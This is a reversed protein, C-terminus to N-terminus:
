NISAMLQSLNYFYVLNVKNTIKRAFHTGPVDHMQMIVKSYSSM